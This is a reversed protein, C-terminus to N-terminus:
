DQHFRKVPPSFVSNTREEKEMWLFSPLARTGMLGWLRVAQGVGAAPARAEIPGVVTSYAPVAAAARWTARARRVHGKGAGVALAEAPRHHEDLRALAAVLAVM